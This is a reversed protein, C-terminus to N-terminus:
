ANMIDKLIDLSEGFGFLDEKCPNAGTIAYPTKDEDNAIKPAWKLIISVLEAKSIDDPFEVKRSNKLVRITSM